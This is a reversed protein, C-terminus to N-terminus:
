RTPSLVYFGHMNKKCGLAFLVANVTRHTFYLWQKLTYQMELHAM